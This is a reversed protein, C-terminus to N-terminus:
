RRNVVGDASAAAVWGESPPSGKGFETM